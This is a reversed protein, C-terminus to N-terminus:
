SSSSLFDNSLNILRRGFPQPPVGAAPAAVWERVPFGFLVVTAAACLFSVGFIGALELNMRVKHWTSLRKTYRLMQFMFYIPYGFTYVVLLLLKALFPNRTYDTVVFNDVDPYTNAIRHHHLHYNSSM